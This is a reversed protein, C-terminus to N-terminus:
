KCIDEYLVVFVYIFNNQFPDFPLWADLPLTKYSYQLPKTAFAVVALLCVATYYWYIKTADEVAKQAIRKQTYTRRSSFRNEVFDWYYVAKKLKEHNRFLSIIKLPIFLVEFPIFTNQTIKVLDKTGNVYINVAPLITFPMYFVITVFLMYAISKMRSFMPWAGILKLIFVNMQLAKQFRMIM